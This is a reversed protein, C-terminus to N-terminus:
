VPSRTVTTVAQLSVPVAALAPLTKMAIQDVTTTGAKLSCDISDGAGTHALQTKALVIYTGAPVDLFVVVTPPSATPLATLGPTPRCRRSTGNSGNSGNSATGDAGHAQALSAM